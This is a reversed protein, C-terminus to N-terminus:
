LRDAYSVAVLEGPGLASSVCQENSGKTVGECAEGSIAMM